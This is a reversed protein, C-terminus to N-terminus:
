KRSMKIPLVLILTKISLKSYIDRLIRSDEIIVKFMNGIEQHQQM